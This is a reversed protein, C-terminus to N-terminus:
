LIFPFYNTYFLLCQSLAGSLRSTCTINFFARWVPPLSYIKQFNLSNLRIMTTLQSLVSRLQLPSNKANSPEVDNTAEPLYTHLDLMQVHGSGEFNQFHLVDGSVVMHSRASLYRTGRGEGGVM